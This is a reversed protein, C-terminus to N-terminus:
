APKLMQGDNAVGRASFFNAKLVLAAAIVLLLGGILVEHWAFNTINRLGLVIAIGSLIAGTGLFISIKPFFRKRWVPFGRVIWDNMGGDVAVANLYGSSRLMATALSASARDDSIVYVRETTPRRRLFIDPSALDAFPLSHAGRIHMAAFESKSRVDILEIPEHNEILMELTSCDMTKVLLTKVSCRPRSLPVKTGHFRRSQM